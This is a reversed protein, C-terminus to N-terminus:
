HQALAAPTSTEHRRTTVVCIEIGDRNMNNMCDMSSPGALGYMSGVRSQYAFKEFAVDLQMNTVTRVMSSDLSQTPGPPDAAALGSCCLALLVGSFIRFLSRM